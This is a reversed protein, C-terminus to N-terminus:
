ARTKTWMAHCMSGLPWVSLSYNVVQYVYWVYSGVTVTSEGKREHMQPDRAMLISM